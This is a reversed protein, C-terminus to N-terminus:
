IAERNRVRMGRFLFPSDAGYFYYDGDKAEVRGIIWENEHFLELQSGCSLNSSETADDYAIFYKGTSHDEELIGEKAPSNLYNLYDEAGQLEEIIGDLTSYAERDETTQNNEMEELIRTLDIRTRNIIDQAKTYGIKM